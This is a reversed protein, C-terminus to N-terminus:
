ATERMDAPMSLRLRGLIREMRKRLTAPTSKFIFELEEYPQEDLVRAVLLDRDPQPLSSLVAEVRESGHAAFVLSEPTDNCPVLHDLFSGDAHHLSAQRALQRALPKVCDRTTRRTVVVVWGGAAMPDLKGAEVEHGFIRLVENTITRQLQTDRLLCFRIGGPLESMGSPLPLRM